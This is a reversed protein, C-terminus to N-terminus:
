FNLLWILKGLLADEHCALPTLFTMIYNCKSPESVESLNNSTGCQLLVQIFLFGCKLIRDAYKRNVWSVKTERSKDGCNDGNALIM